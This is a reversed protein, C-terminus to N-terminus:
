SLPLAGDVHKWSERRKIRSITTQRVGYRKGLSVQTDMSALIEYVQDETLKAGGHKEGLHPTNVRRGKLDMDKINDGRTGLFLHHPNVCIRNDCTHCVCMGEPIEGRRLRWSARHALHKKGDVLVEGYGNNTVTGQWEWCDGVKEVKAWFRFKLTKM